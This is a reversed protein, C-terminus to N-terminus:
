RQRRSQKTPDTQSALTEAAEVPWGITLGDAAAQKLLRLRYEGTAAWRDLARVTGLVKATMGYEALKSIRLLAPPQLVREAWAPDRALDEGAANVTRTLQEIDTGYPIPVDFHVNAWTRTLNSSTEILGHPVFHLTGDIDRLTTRRLNVDEVAGTVGAITVVDGKAYQNEVFVFAGAVYDRVLNQAGLSLALGLVGLGAIAPGIDLRLIALAMLFAIALIIVVLVRELLRELTERRRVLEVEDVEQATGEEAERAFLRALGTRVTLSTFRLAILTAVLLVLLQVAVSTISAWSAADTLWEELPPM